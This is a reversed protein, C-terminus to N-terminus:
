VVVLMPSKWLKAMRGIASTSAMVSCRWMLLDSVTSKREVEGRSRTAEDALRREESPPPTEDEEVEEEEEDDEDPAENAYCRPAM